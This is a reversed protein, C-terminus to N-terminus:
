YIHVNLPNGTDLWASNWGCVIDDMEDNLIPQGNKWSGFGIGLAEGKGM